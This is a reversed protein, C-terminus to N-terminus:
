TSYLVGQLHGQYKESNILNQPKRADLSSRYNGELSGSSGRPLMLNAEAQLAPAEDHLRVAERPHADLLTHYVGSLAAGEPLLEDVVLYPEVRGTLGLIGADGSFFEFEGGLKERVGTSHWFHFRDM